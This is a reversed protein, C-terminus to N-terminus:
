VVSKRDTLIQRIYNSGDRLVVSWIIHLGGKSDALPLDFQEGPLRESYRSADADATLARMQPKGDIKLNAPKYITGDKLLLAFPIPLRLTTKHLKDTVTVDVLKENSITWGAEIAQNSVSYSDGHIAAVAKGPGQAHTTICVLATFLLTTSRMQFSTTRM